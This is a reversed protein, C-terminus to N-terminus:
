RALPSTVAIFLSFYSVGFAASVGTIVESAPPHTPLGPHSHDVGDLYQAVRYYWHMSSIIQFAEEEHEDRGAVDNLTSMLTFMAKTAPADLRLRAPITAACGSRREGKSAKSAELCVASAIARLQMRLYGCLEETVSQPVATLGCDRKLVQLAACIREQRCLCVEREVEAAAAAAAAVAGGAEDWDCDMDMDMPAEEAQQPPAAEEDAPEGDRMRALDEMFDDVQADLFANLLADDDEGDSFGIAPGDYDMACAFPTPPADCGLYKDHLGVDLAGGPPPTHVMPYETGPLNAHPSLPLLAAASSM